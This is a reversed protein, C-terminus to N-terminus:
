KSEEKDKMKYFHGSFRAEEIGVNARVSGGSVCTLYM